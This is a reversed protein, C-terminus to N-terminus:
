GRRQNHLGFVLDGTAGLDRRGGIANPVADYSLIPLNGVDEQWTEPEQTKGSLYGIGAGVAIAGIGIAKDMGPKMRHGVFMNSWDPDIREVPNLAIKAATKGISSMYAPGGKLTGKVGVDKVGQLFKSEAATKAALKQRRVNFLPRNAVADKLYQSRKAM